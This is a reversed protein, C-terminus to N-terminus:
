VAYQDLEENLLTSASRREHSQCAPSDPRLAGRTENRFFLGLRITGTKPWDGRRTSIRRTTRLRNRYIKELEPVVVGDDHVLLEIADPNKVAESTSARRTCRAASCFASSRSATTSTPRACRPMSTRPFGSRRRRSSRANTVGLADHAPQAAPLYSGHPQTNTKFGQPTTPSTQKKTLGYIGNDLLLAVMQMNYRIAHIWHAAGISTCDGDGMVVFVTLDPRHLKIARRWRCRAATSATSATRRSTTRSAARAASARSSCRRSRAQAARRRAAKGGRHAGLSRRLRPVLTGAAGEYDSSRTSATRTATRAAGASGCTLPDHSREGRSAGLERIASCSRPRAAAARGARADLLGRRVADARAAALALQGRRRNEETIFPDGPEDSYNIEVTM